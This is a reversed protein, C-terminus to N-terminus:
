PLLGMIYILFLIWASSLLSALFPGVAETAKLHEANRSHSVGLEILSAMLILAFFMTALVLLIRITWM